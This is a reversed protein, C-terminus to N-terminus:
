GAQDVGGDSDEEDDEGREVSLLVAKLAARQKPTMDRPNIVVHAHKREHLSVGM